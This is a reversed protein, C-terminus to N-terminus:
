ADKVAVGRGMWWGKGMFIKILCRGWTLVDAGNWFGPLGRGGWGRADSSLAFPSMPISESLSWQLFFVLTHTVYAFGNVNFCSANVSNGNFYECKGM